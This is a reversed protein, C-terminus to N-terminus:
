MGPRLDRGGGFFQHAAQDLQVAGPQGLDGLDEARVFGPRPQKGLQHRIRQHLAQQQDVVQVREVGAGADPAGDLLDQGLEARLAPSISYWPSSSCPTTWRRRSRVAPPQWDVAPVIWVTMSCATAAAAGSAAPTAM